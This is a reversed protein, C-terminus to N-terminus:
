FSSQTFNKVYKDLDILKDSFNKHFCGLCNSLHPKQPIGKGQM